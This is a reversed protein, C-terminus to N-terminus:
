YKAFRKLTAVTKELYPAFLAFDSKERAEHWVDESRNLHMQYEVYEDKPISGAFELERDFLELERAAQADLADRHARLVELVEQTKEGTQLDYIDEALVGMTVAREEGSGSPATTVGDYYLVNNAHSYAHMRAEIARFKQLAENLEM